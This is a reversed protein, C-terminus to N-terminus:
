SLPTLRTSYRYSTQLMPSSARLAKYSVSRPRAFCTRRTKRPQRVPKIPTHFRCRLSKQVPTLRYYLVCSLTQLRSHCRSVLTKSFHSLTRLMDAQM